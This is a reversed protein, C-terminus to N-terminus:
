WKYWGWTSSLIQSRHRVENEVMWLLTSVGVLRAWAYTTGPKIKSGVNGLQRKENLLVSDKWVMRKELAASKVSLARKEYRWNSNERELKTRLQCCIHLATAYEVQPSQTSIVSVTYRMSLEHYNQKEKNGLKKRTAHHTDEGDSNCQYSGSKNWVNFVPKYKEASFRKKAWIIQVDNRSQERSPDIFHPSDTSSVDRKQIHGWVIYNYSKQLMELFTRPACSSLLLVASQKKNRWSDHNKEVVSRDNNKNFVNWMTDIRYPQLCYAACTKLCKTGIFVRGNKNILHPTM